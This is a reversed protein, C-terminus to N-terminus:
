ILLANLMRIIPADGASELLDEVAPLEQMMRSLDADSEVESVVAAASSEGQAYATSIRQALGAADLGQLATVTHRRMVEGCASADPTPGHWLTSHEGDDELLLQHSRAFAYPLPYRFASAM